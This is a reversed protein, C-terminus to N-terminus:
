RVAAIEPHRAGAPHGSTALARALLERLTEREDPSLAALVDEEIGEQAREAKALAKRGAPTIEVLHRRRDSPDRTRLVHGAEELENLLLVLNNADMGLTECLGQQPAAEHDRLYTLTVFLRMRMGLLEESSRKYVVKALRSILVMSGATRTKTGMTDM